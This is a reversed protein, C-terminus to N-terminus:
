SSFRMWDLRIIKIISVVAVVVVIIKYLTNARFKVTFRSSIALKITTTIIIAVTTGCTSPM